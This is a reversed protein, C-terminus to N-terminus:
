AAAPVPAKKEAAAGLLRGACYACVLGGVAPLAAAGLAPFLYPSTTLGYIMLGAFVLSILILIVAAFRKM